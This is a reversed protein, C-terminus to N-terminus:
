QVSDSSDDTYATVLRLRMLGTITDMGKRKITDKPEKKKRCPELIDLIIKASPSPKVLFCLEQIVDLSTHNLIINNRIDKDFQLTSSKKLRNKASWSHFAIKSINQEGCSRIKNTFKITALKKRGKLSTLGCENEATLSNTSSVAEIILKSTRYQVSDIKETSTSASPAWIPTAYELIPRILATYTNLLTKPKCGLILSLEPSFTARIRMDTPFVCYKAKEPCILLKLQKSWDEIRSLNENLINETIAIDTHTGFSLTMHLAPAIKAENVIHDDVTNM